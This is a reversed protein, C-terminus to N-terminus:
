EYTKNAFEKLQFKSFAEIDLCGANYDDFFKDDDIDDNVSDNVDNATNNDTQQSLQRNDADDKAQQATQDDDAEATGTEIRGEM